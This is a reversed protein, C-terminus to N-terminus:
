LRAALQYALCAAGYALLTMGVFAGAAIRGSGTEKRMVALTSACQLSLAYFVLLAVATATSMGNQLLATPLAELGNAAADMGYLTGLTGVFVERAVFSTLVAVAVKWDAGIPRLVPEILQGMQALWSRELHGAGGPFYGLVWVAVTVFFIVPAARRVFDLSRGGAARLIARVSPLRYPPLELVFPADGLSGARRPLTAHLLASVLLAAVVGLVYLSTLALGQLGLLGGAVAHAPIFAGILLGYIPLRASCSMFPISLITLLRRRPSEITRAAMMAPIACAHGSLLPVFSKGSLGFLSLPRHLIVAARALYGSDELVGIVVFLVFIQPVFVLFSGIGAFLGDRVFDQGLQWPVWGSVLAGLETTAWEVADMLPAAWSFVAQFLVAMLLLFVLP